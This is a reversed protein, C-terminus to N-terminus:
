RVRAIVVYDVRGAFPDDMKGSNDKLVARTDFKVTEGQIQVNEFRIVQQNIPHEGSVYHLDFGKLLVEASLVQRGQFVAPTSVVAEKGSTKDIDVTGSRFEIDATRIDNVAAPKAVAEQAVSDSPLFATGVLGSVGLGIAAPIWKNM